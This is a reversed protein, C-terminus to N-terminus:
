ASLLKGSRRPQLGAVKAISQGARAWRQLERAFLLGDVPSCLTQSSGTVPCVLDVLPQGAQVWQGVPLHWVLLGTAPAQLPLCAALMQASRREDQREALRCADPCPCQRRGQGCQNAVCRM